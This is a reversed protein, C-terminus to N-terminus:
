PRQSRASNIEMSRSVNNAERKYELWEEPTYDTDVLDRLQEKVIALNEKLTKETIEQDNM